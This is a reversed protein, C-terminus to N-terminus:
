TPRATCRQRAERELQRLSASVSPGPLPLRSRALLTAGDATPEVLVFLGYGRDMSSPVPLVSLLVGTDAREVEWVGPLDLLAALLRDHASPGTLQSHYESQPRFTEITCTALLAWLLLVGLVVLILFFEAV